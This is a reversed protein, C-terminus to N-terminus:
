RCTERHERARVQKDGESGVSSSEVLPGISNTVVAVFEVFEQREVLLTDM